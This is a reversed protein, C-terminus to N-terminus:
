ISFITSRHSTLYMTVKGVFVMVQIKFTEVYVNVLIGAQGILSATINAIIDTEDKLITTKRYKNDRTFPIHCILILNQKNSTERHEKRYKNDVFMTSDDFTSNGFIRGCDLCSFLV